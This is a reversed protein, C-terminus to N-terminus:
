FFCWFHPFRWWPNRVYWASMMASPSPSMPLFNLWTQYLAMAVKKEFNWTPRAFPCDNVRRYRLEPAAYYSCTRVLIHKEYTWLAIEFTGPFLKFHCVLRRYWLYLLFPANLSTPERILIPRASRFHLVRTEGFQDCCSSWSLKLAFGPM